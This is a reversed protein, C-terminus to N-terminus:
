RAGDFTVVIWVTKLIIKLDLLVSRNRIYFLDKELKEAPSLEYGGNVQSWGTLGPKVVLRGSFEPLERSFEKIFQAREPRPGVLSMEGRLVNIFQPLEDIRTKRLLRGVKTVRPDNKQAWCAGDQEANYYMTRLKYIMFPQGDKGVREQTYIVPGETEMSILIVAIIIVPSSIILGAFSFLVDFTGKVATFALKHFSVRHVFGKDSVIQCEKGAMEEM